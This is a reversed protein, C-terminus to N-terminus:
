EITASIQRDLLGYLMKHLDKESGEKVACKGKHHILLTCQEAQINSHGCIEILAIIVHQFSNVDDNYVILSKSVKTEEKIEEKIETETNFEIM